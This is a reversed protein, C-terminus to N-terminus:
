LTLIIVADLGPDTWNHVLPVYKHKGCFNIFLNKFDHGLNRM